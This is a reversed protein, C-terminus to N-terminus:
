CVKLSVLFLLRYLKIGRGNDSCVVLLCKEKVVNTRLVSIMALCMNTLKIEPAEEKAKKRSRLMM